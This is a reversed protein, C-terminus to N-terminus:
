KGWIGSIGSIKELRWKSLTKTALRKIEKDTLRLYSGRKDIFDLVMIGAGRSKPRLM